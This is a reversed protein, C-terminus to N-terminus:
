KRCFLAKPALMYNNDCDDDSLVYWFAESANYTVSVSINDRLSDCMGFQM